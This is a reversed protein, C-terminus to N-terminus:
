SIYISQWNSEKAHSTGGYPLMKAGSMLNSAHVIMPRKFTTYTMESAWIPFAIERNFAALCKEGRETNNGIYASAM